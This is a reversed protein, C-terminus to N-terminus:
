GQHWAGAPAPPAPARRTSNDAGLARHPPRAVHTTLTRAKNRNVEYSLVPTGDGANLLWLLGDTVTVAVDPTRIMVDQALLSLSSAFPMLRVLTQRTLALTRRARAHM